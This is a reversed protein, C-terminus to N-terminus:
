NSYGCPGEKDESRAKKRLKSCFVVRMSHYEALSRMQRMIGLDALMRTQLPLAPSLAIADVVLMHKGVFMDLLSSRDPEYHAVVVALPVDDIKAVLSRGALTKWWGKKEDGEWCIMERLLPPEGLPSGGSKEQWMWLSLIARREAPSITLLMMDDDGGGYSKGTSSTPPAPPFDLQLRV